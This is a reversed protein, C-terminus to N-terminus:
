IGWKDLAMAVMDDSNDKTKEVVEAGSAMTESATGRRLSQFPPSAPSSSAASASSSALDLSILQSLHDAQVTSEGSLGLLDASADVGLGLLDGDTQEDATGTQAAAAGFDLLDCDAPQRSEVTQAPTEALDLLDMSPATRPPTPETCLSLLDAAPDTAAVKSGDANICPGRVIGVTPEPVPRELTCNKIWSERYWEAAPTSYRQLALSAPVGNADFFSMLQKNGGYKFVQLQRETWSDMKCSRIRSIHTGLQRHCGSCEICLLIAFSVSAWETNRCGCEFCRNNEESQARVEDFRQQVDLTQLPPDKGVHTAAPSVIACTIHSSSSTSTGQYPQIIPVGAPRIGTVFSSVAPGSQPRQIGIGPAFNCKISPNSGRSSTWPTGGASAYGGSGLSMVGPGACLDAYAGGIGSHGSVPHQSKQNALGVGGLVSSGADAVMGAADEVADGLTRLVGQQKVSIMTASIDDAVVDIAGALAKDVAQLM